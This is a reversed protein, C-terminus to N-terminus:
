LILTSCLDNGEKMGTNKDYYGDNLAYISDDLLTYLMCCKMMSEIQHASASVTYPKARSLLARIRATDHSREEDALERIIEAGERYPVIVSSSTDDFVKFWEGATRFAQNLHYPTANDPLFQHNTSLLEFLTHEGVPEDQYGLPMDRYLCSFYYRVAQDSALDHSYKAPNRQYEALLDRLANQADRIHRLPGLQENKLQCIQVPQPTVYEGHRNCRGASQVINDLGASLRIVAGFSIDVGAEIVQTSVCIIPQGAQLAATIDALVAKRHAMCMGASLHCLRGRTIGALRRYLEAAERRTNCVILLSGAADLLSVAKAALEDMDCAGADEIRTRRFLSAHRTCLEESVLRKCPLMGHLIHRNDLAPQTASCLVITAGCCQSLFNVACNFM